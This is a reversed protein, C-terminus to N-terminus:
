PEQVNKKESEKLEEIKDKNDMYFEILDEIHNEELHENICDGCYDNEDQEWEACLPCLQIDNCDDSEGCSYCVTKESM